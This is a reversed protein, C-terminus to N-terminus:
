RLVFHERLAAPPVNVLEKSIVQDLRRRVSDPLAEILENRLAAGAALDWTSNPHKGMFAAIREALQETVRRESRDPMLESELSPSNTRNRAHSFRDDPALGDSYSDRTEPLDLADVPQISPTFQGPQQSYRYIRLRARDVAIIYKQSM